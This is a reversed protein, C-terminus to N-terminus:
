MPITRPPRRAKAHRHRRIAPRPSNRRTPPAAPRFALLGVSFATTVETSSVCALALGAEAGTASM